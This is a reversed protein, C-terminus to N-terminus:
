HKRSRHKRTKRTKNKRHKRHRGGDHSGFGPLIKRTFKTPNVLNVPNKASPNNALKVLGQKNKELREKKIEELMTKVQKNLSNNDTPM